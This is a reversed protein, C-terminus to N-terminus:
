CVLQEVFITLDEKFDNISEIMLQELFDISMKQKKVLMNFQNRFKNIYNNEKAM